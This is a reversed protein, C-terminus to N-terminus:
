EDGSEVCEQAIEELADEHSKFPGNESGNPYVALWDDGDKRITYDQM